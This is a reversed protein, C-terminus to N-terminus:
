LSWGWGIDRRNNQGGDKRKIARLGKKRRVKLKTSKIEVKPIKVVIEQSKYPSRWWKWYNERDKLWRSNNVLPEKLHNEDRKERIQPEKQQHWIIVSVIMGMLIIPLLGPGPVLASSLNKRKGM